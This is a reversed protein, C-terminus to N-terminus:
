CHGASLTHYEGNQPEEETIENYYPNGFDVEIDDDYALTLSVCASVACLACTISWLMMVARCHTHPKHNHTSTLPRRYTDQSTISTLHHQTDRAPSSLRIFHLITRRRTEIERDRYTDRDRTRERTKEERRCGRQRVKGYYQLDAARKKM